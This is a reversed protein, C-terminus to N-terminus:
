EVFEMNIKVVFSSSPVPFSKNKVKRAMCDTVDTTTTFVIDGMNGNRLVEFYITFPEHIPSDPPLCQMMFHPEGWFTQVAQIEYDNGGAKSIDIKNRSELEQLKDSAHAITTLLCLLLIRIM